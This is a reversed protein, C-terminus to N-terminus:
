NKQLIIPTPSILSLGVLYITNDMDFIIMKM